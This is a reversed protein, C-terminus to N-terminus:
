GKRLAFYTWGAALLDILGFIILSPSIWDLLVFLTFWVIITGRVYVSLTMFLTNNTPAMFFYYLGLCFVLVGVVRIWVENTEPLQFLPLLVNPIVVLLIGLILLYIGFVYLSKSAATM